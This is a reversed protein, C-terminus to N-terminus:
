HLLEPNTEEPNNKRKRWRSQQLSKLLLTNTQKNLTEAFAGLLRAAPRTAMRPPPKNVRAKGTMKLSKTSFRAKSSSDEAKEGCHSEVVADGLLAKM